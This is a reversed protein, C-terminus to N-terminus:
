IVRFTGEYTDVWGDANILRHKKTIAVAKKTTVIPKDEGAKVPATEAPLLTGLELPEVDSSLFADLDLNADYAKQLMEVMYVEYSNM